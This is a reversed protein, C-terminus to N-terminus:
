GAIVLPYAAAYLAILVLGTRRDNRGFAVMLATAAAVVILAVLGGRLALSSTVLTPAVLPGIGLSLTADVFSSGFMNGVAIATEGRRLAVVDVFLEPLSTGVSTAFFSVLYEPVALMSAVEIFGKVAASAAVGVVLLAALASLVHRSIPPREESVAIAPMKESGGRWLAVTAILWTFLLVAGDLRSLEGDAVLLMGLALSLVTVIGVLGVRTRDVVMAGCILPLLGLILSVQTATSGISDGVNLDGHGSVSAAISNAIEPLDTGIAVLTIGVFFPPIHRGRAIATAHDVVRRSAFMTVVLGAIILAIWVLVDRSHARYAGPEHQPDIGM